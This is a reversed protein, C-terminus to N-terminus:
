ALLIGDVLQALLNRAANALACVDGSTAGIYAAAPPTGLTRKRVVQLPFITRVACGVLGHRRTRSQLASPQLSRRNSM